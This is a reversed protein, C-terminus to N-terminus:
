PGPKGLWRQREDSSGDDVVIIEDIDGISLAGEGHRCHDEENFAPIIASVQM